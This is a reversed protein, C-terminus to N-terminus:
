KRVEKPLPVRLRVRTGQGPESEIQLEGGLAVARESMSSRGVGAGSEPGFGCGDDSVEAILHGGETKLVVTVGNARSHRRANTLAEQLVRWVQAGTDGM